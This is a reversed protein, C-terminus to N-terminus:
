KSAYLLLFNMNFKRKMISEFVVEKESTGCLICVHVSNSVRQLLIETYIYIRFCALSNEETMKIQGMSNIIAVEKLVLNNM